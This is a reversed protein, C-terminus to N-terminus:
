IDSDDFFDVEDAPVGVNADTFLYHRGNREGAYGAINVEQDADAAHWIAPGTQSYLASAESDFLSPADNLAPNKVPSAVPIMIEVQPEHPEPNTELDHNSPYDDRSLELYAILKDIAEQTVVGEFLVRAKSRSSIRLQLADAFTEEGSALPSSQLPAPQFTRATDIPSPAATFPHVGSQNGNQAAVPNQPASQFLEPQKVAADPAPEPKVEAGGEVSAITDKYIQIVESAMRPNFGKKILMHRLSADSPLRDGYTEKLEAFLPPKFAATTRAAMSLPDSAPLEFIDVADSSVKLGDGESILLGYKKLASIMSRSTGNLGTYGIAVAVVEASTKHTHERDYVLKARNIAEVLSIAPYNPSRTRSAEPRASETRAGEPNNELM